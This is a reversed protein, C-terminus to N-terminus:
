GRQKPLRLLGLGLLLLVATAPEPVTITLTYSNFTGTDGYRADFVQFRWPGYADEGDFSALLSPELPRYRGRFPVQGEEIPTSAEDDFTTSSYNAGKYFHSLDGENLLVTTGAPSKLLLKLDFASTHTIGVTVDLDTIALHSPVEIIADVMWGRNTDPAAPIRLNFSGSYTCVVDGAQVPVRASLFVGAVVLAALIGRAKM